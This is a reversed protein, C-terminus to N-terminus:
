VLLCAGGHQEIGSASALTEGAYGIDDAVEGGGLDRLNGLPWKSSPHKLETLLHGV